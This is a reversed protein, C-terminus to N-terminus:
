QGTSESVKRIFDGLPSLDHSWFIAVGEKQADLVNAVKFVGALVAAGVIGNTGFATSWHNVKEVTEHNLRKFSNVESNSVKCEIAMFRGDPLGVVLDAKKGAVRSERCFEGAGPADGLTRVDRRPTESFKLSRLYECVANEQNEKALNRRKTQTKQGAMLAATSMVAAHKEEASPSRGEGLWPFRKPDVSASIVDMIRQASEGDSLAKSSLSEVSALVKLDDDSIAPSALYRMERLRGGSLLRPAKEELDQLDNTDEFLASVDSEADDFAVVYYEIGERKREEVFKRSSLAAAVRTEDESWCVPRVLAM